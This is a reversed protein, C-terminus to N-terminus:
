KGSNLKFIFSLGLHSLTEGDKSLGNYGLIVQFQDANYGVHPYYDFATTSSGGGTLIGVGVKAGVFINAMPYFRAGVLIPILGVNPGKVTENQVGDFFTYSKGFFETYGASVVGSFQDSFMYEGQLEGGIGFSSSNHFDGLPLALNLGAGFVFSQNSSSQANVSIISFVLVAVILLQKRM